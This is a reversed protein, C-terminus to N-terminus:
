ALDYQRCIQEAIETAQQPALRPGSVSWQFGWNPDDANRQSPRTIVVHRINGFEPHQRVSEMILAKLEAETKKEKAVM